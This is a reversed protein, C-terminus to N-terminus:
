GVLVAGNMKANPIGCVEKSDSLPFKLETLDSPKTVDM